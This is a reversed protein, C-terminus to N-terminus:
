PNKELVVGLIIVNLMGSDNKPLYIVLMKLGMNYLMNLSKNGTRSNGHSWPTSELLTCYWPFFFKFLMKLHIGRWSEKPFFFQLYPREVNTEKKRTAIYICMLLSWPTMTLTIKMLFFLYYYFSYTRFNSMDSIFDWDVM